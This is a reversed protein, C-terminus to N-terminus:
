RLAKLGRELRDMAQTLLEMSTAYSIRVCTDDGFADGPVLTVHFKKLLYQCLTESGTVTLTSSEADNENTDDEHKPSSEADTMSWHFKKGFAEAIPVFVYFAGQPVYIDPSVYPMQKLRSLTYDRKAKCQAIAGDFFCSPVRGDVAAIAAYQSPAAPSTTNQSQINGIAAAISDPACSYGVRFGTMASGKSFGNITVTREWMGPLTAFCVHKEDYTLQDYIEDAIVILRPHKAVEEAIERLGSEPIVAGTPNNPNCLIIAKTRPTIVQRLQAATLVFGTDATTQAIVTSAGCLQVMVPYSVWYPAPVIVEDGPDCLSLLSQLISQKAGNSVVVQNPEYTVNKTNKLYACIASRLAHTGPNETYRVHGKNLAEHAAEMVQPPPLYDPEGVGLSVVDVGQRRLDATIGAMVVTKSAPMTRVREALCIGRFGQAGDSPSPDIANIRKIPATVIAGRIGYQQDMATLDTVLESLASSFDSLQQGSKQNHTYLAYFLDFSDARTNDVLKLLAKFGTTAIPSTKVGLKSLLRGTLHTVFQSGAAQQDHEECRMPVMKCGEVEFLSLFRAARHFDSIRVQDYVLPLNQWSHAGSEPGFMPHLCLLDTTPTTHQLLVQKPHVKVSLVDVILKGQFLVPDINRIVSEFSLISVAIIIVDIVPERTMIERLAAPEFYTVGIASAAESYSCNFNTAFVRHGQRVFRKSIFQGFTGFGLVAIRLPIALKSSTQVSMMAAGKSQAPSDPASLSGAPSPNPPPLFKFESPYSGLVAVFRALEELHRLANMFRPESAAAIADIYFAYEFSPQTSLGYGASPPRTGEAAIDAGSEIKHVETLDSSSGPVLRILRMLSTPKFPRSEVKSLDIDRVAFVSLAKFLVGAENKRPVFVVTSKSPLGEPTQTSVRGLVLFRTFNNDDDEIGYDLIKLGYVEAARVSAIAAIHRDGQKSVMKAAGATDYVPSAQIGCGKLFGETQALAQPHSAAQKIEEKTVGPLAMLNHRVRYNYEGLVSVRDHFQLLLDYNVHISGGLTNEIPVVAYDVEKTVAVATFVDEFSPYGKTTVNVKSHGATPSPLCESSSVQPGETSTIHGFAEYTAAESYAGPEGQFAVLLAKAEAMTKNEREEKKTAHNRDLERLHKGCIKNTINEIYGLILRSFLVYPDSVVCSISM